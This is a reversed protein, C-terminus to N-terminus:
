LTHNEWYGDPYSPNVYMKYKTYGNREEKSFFNFSADEDMFPPYGIEKFIGVLWKCVDRAVKQGDNELEFRVCIWPVTVNSGRYVPHGPPHIEPNGRKIYNDTYSLLEPYFVVGIKTKWEENRAGPCTEFPTNMELYHLDHQTFNKPDKARLKLILESIEEGISPSIDTIM